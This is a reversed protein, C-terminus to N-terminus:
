GYALIAANFGYEITREIFDKAEKWIMKQDAQESFTKDFTFVELKNDTAISQGQDSIIYSKDKFRDDGSEMASMMRIRCCMKFEVFNVHKPQPRSRDHRSLVIDVKVCTECRITSCKSCFYAPSGLSKNEHDIGSLCKSLEKIKACVFTVENAEIRVM